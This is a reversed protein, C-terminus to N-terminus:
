FFEVLQIKSDVTYFTQLKEFIEQIKKNCNVVDKM